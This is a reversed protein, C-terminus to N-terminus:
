GFLVELTFAATMAVVSLSAWIDVLWGLTHQKRRRPRPLEAHVAERDPVLHLCPRAPEEAPQPALSTNQALALKRRYEGLDVVNDRHRIFNKTTCYITEM